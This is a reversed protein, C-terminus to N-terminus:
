SALKGGTAYVLDFYASWCQGVIDLRERTAEVFARRADLLEVLSADGKEYDLEVLSAAKHLKETIVEARALRKEAIALRALANDIQRVAERELASMNWRSAQLDANARAIAGQNRYFLPLPISVGFSVQPPQIAQQGTGQQSYGVMFGIGQFRNAREVSITAEHQAIAASQAKLDPRAGLALHVLADRSPVAPPKADIQNAAVDYRTETQGFTAALDVKASAFDSRASDVAQDSELTVADARLLEQEAVAGATYRKQVIERTRRAQEGLESETKLALQALAVALYRQEVQYDLERLQDSRSHEAVLVGREAATGRRGRRGSLLEYLAGSDTLTVSYANASCGGCQSPDYGFTRGVAFTAVPNQVARASTVDARAGDVSADAVKLSPSRQRALAIAQELTLHSYPGADAPQASAQSALLLLLCAAGFAGNSVPPRELFM